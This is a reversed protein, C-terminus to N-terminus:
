SQCIGKQHHYIWTVQTISKEQALRSARVEEPHPEAQVDGSLIRSCMRSGSYIDWHCHVADCVPSLIGIVAYLAFFVLQGSFGKIYLNTDVKQITYTKM